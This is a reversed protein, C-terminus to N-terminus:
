CGADVETIAKAVRERWERGTIAEAPTAVTEMIRVMRATAVEVDKPTLVEAARIYGAKHIARDLWTLDPRGAGAASVLDALTKKLDASVAAKPRRQKTM